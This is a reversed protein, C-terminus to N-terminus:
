CRMCNYGGRHFKPLIENTSFHKTNVLFWISCYVSAFTQRWDQSSLLTLTLHLGRMRFSRVCRVHVILNLMHSWCKDTKALHIWRRKGMECESESVSFLTHASARWQKIDSKAISEDKLCKFGILWYAFTEANFVFSHAANVVCYVVIYSFM